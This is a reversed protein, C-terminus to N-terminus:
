LSEWDSWVTFARASLDDYLRRVFPADDDRAYSLFLRPRTPSVDPAPETPPEEDQPVM